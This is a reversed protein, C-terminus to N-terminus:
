HWGSGRSKEPVDALINWKAEVLDEGDRWVSDPVLTLTEEKSVLLGPEEGM